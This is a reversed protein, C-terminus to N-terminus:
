IRYRVRHASYGQFRRYVLSHFELLSFFQFDWDQDDSFYAEYVNDFLFDLWYLGENNLYSITEHLTCCVFQKHSGSIKGCEGNSLRHINSAHRILYSLSVVPIYRSKSWVLHEEFKQQHYYRLIARENRQSALASISYEISRTDFHKRHKTNTGHLM